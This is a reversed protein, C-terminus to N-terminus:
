RGRRLAVIGILALGAPVAWSPLAGASQQQQQQRQREAEIASLQAALEANIAHQQATTAAAAADAAEDMAQDIADGVDAGDLGSVDVASWGLAEAMIATAEAEIDDALQYWAALPFWRASEGDGSLPACSEGPAGCKPHDYTPSVRDAHFPDCAQSRIAKAKDIAGQRWTDWALQGGLTAASDPDSAKVAGADLYARADDRLARYRWAYQSRWYNCTGYQSGGPGECYTWPSWYRTKGDLGKYEGSVRWTGKKPRPRDPCTHDATWPSPVPVIAM